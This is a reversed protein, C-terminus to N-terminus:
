KAKRRAQVVALGTLGVGFLLMTAPEPIPDTVNDTDQFFTFTNDSTFSGDKFEIEMSQFLDGFYTPDAPAIGVLGIGGVYSVVIDEGLDNGYNTDPLKILGSALYESENFSM